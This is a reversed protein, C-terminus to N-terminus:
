RSRDARWAKSCPLREAAENCGAPGFVMARIISFPQISVLPTEPRADVFYPIVSRPAAAEAAFIVAERQRRYADLFTAGSVLRNTPQKLSL